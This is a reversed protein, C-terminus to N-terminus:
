RGPIVQLALFGVCGLWVMAGHPLTIAKPSKVSLEDRSEYPMRSHALEHLIFVANKLKEMLKGRALLLLLAVSGGILASMIFIVIWNWPGMFAGVAAMLKVDGAGMARLVYLVFYLGFALGCGELSIRAGQFASLLLNLGFGAVIGSYTLWNPIRRFRLDYIAAIAVVLMLM